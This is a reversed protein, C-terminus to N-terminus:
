KSPKEVPLEKKKIWATIAQTAQRVPIASTTRPDPWTGRKPAEIDYLSIIAATFMAMQRLELTENRPITIGEVFAATVGTTGDVNKESNTTHRSLDWNLPRPFHKPDLHHLETPLHAFTNKKLLYGEPGAEDEDKLLLDEELRLTTWDASYLRVTEVCAARFQTCRSLLGDLDLKEIKPPVWVALSFENEPQVVRVYPAIEERIEELLVPDRYLEFLMWFILMDVRANLEWALALDFAARGERSIKYQRYLEARRLVLPSVNDLDQWQPSSEDQEFHKDLADHFEAAYSLLKRRAVKARQARPWPIWAPLQLALLGFGDNFTWLLQWFDPFNYMFDTGFTAGNAAHAVFGRTLETLDVEMFRGDKPDDIVDAGAVREWDMQDSPYSNFSVFDPVHTTLQRLLKSTMEDLSRSVLDALETGHERHMTEFAEWDQRPLSFVSKLLHSSFWSPGSAPRRANRLQDILSPRYIFSHARGLIPLSFIGEPYKDRLGTLYGGYNTAIGTAHGLYPVWYAPSPPQRPGNRPSSANGSLLRTTVLIVVLSVLISLTTPQQLFATVRDTVEASSAQRTAM